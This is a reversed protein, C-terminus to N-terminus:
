QQKQWDHVHWAWDSLREVDSFSEARSRAGFLVVLLERDIDVASPRLTVVLNWGSEDLYGTKGGTVYVDDYVSKYLMWNTNVMKKSTGHNLVNIHKYVTTSYKRIYENEFVVEALRAMERPTSVNELEIGTPDAFHTRILNLEKAKQNMRAVFQDRSFGTSRSLANAANNASAVLSAYFLHNVTFTDGDYVWLKAGGVDDFSRVSQVNTLPVDEDMVVSATMLKTLSAIPWVRNEQKVTLVKGTSRDLVVYGHAMIKGEIERSDVRVPIGDGQAPAYALLEPHEKHGYQRAWDELDLMFGAASGPIARHTVSDFALQLDPRKNYIEILANSSAFVTAPLSAVILTVVFLVQTFKRM